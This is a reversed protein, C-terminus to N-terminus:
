ALSSLIQEARTRQNPGGEALVEALLEKAGETDGMDIYATVLDLKTDVDSPEALDAFDTADDGTSLDLNIGSLDLETIAPEAEASPKAAVPKTEAAQPEPTDDLDLDFSIDKIQEPIAEPKTESKAELKPEVKELEPEAAFLNDEDDDPTDAALSMDVEEVEGMISPTAFDPADDANLENVEIAATEAEDFDLTDDDLEPQAPTAIETAAKTEKIPTEIIPTESELEAAKTSAPEPAAEATVSEKEPVFSPVDDKSFISSDVVSKAPSQAGV